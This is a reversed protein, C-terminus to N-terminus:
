QADEWAKMRRAITEEYGLNGPKYYRASTPIYEQAVHHGAFDHPYLYPKPDEKGAATVHVNKLHEPVPLVRGARIDAAAAEVAMYSANSKPATALYTVAHALVIRAEPMGVFDVAQYASVAVTLARPDANGIDESAFIVMRRVIFRPDEGAELMKALWYIAAHPDSGRMSKIFASITDYHGDENRDYALIKRQVCDQMTAADVLIAGDEAPPTSLVAVELATLARRADGECVEALFALADDTVVAGSRGLGHEKDTLARRLLTEVAATDLPKLEFVLSRSTLPTNIFIQPNHTTAGILVVTGDEVYPLLVDQQAKNFRHIEDIFLVTGRIGLFNRAGECIARLSAVNGVVGSVREFRRRTAKAIVEALSTKGCGPPGFFILNTLRDAEIVRRLLRGPGLIHDQGVIDDLSRPRMRAALPM